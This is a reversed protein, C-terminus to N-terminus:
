KRIREPAGAAVARFLADEIRQGFRKGPHIPIIDGVVHDSAHHNVALAPRPLHFLDGLRQSTQIDLWEHGLRRRPTHIPGSLEMKALMEFADLGGIIVLNQIRNGSKQGGLLISFFDPFAIKLRLYVCIFVSLVNTEM